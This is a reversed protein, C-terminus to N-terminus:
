GGLRGMVMQPGRFSAHCQNCTNTIENMKSKLLATKRDRALQELELCQTRLQLALNNFVRRSEANMELDKFAAPLVRADSALQAAARAVREVRADTDPGGAGAADAHLREMELASLGHMIERLRANDVAHLGHGTDEDRGELHTAPEDNEQSCAAYGMILAVSMSGVTVRVVRSRSMSRIREDRAGSGAASKMRHMM